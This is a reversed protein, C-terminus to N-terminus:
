AVTKRAGTVLLWIGFPIEFAAMPIWMLVTVPGALLGVFQLPLLVVLLVSSIVGLWALARPIMQGRLLLYSFITSGVAFLIASSLPKWVGFQQLATGLADTTAPSPRDVGTTALWLLGLTTLPLAGGLGEGVRCAFGLLALESDEDRTLGYLTVGLVLASFCMVLSLILSIRMETTHAAVSVLKEAIGEGATARGSLIMSAIGAAIYVLFASGALRANTTRTMPGKHQDVPRVSFRIVQNRTIGKSVPSHPTSVM